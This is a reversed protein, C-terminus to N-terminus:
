VSAFFTSIKNGITTLIVVSIVDIQRLSQLIGFFRFVSFDTSHIFCSSDSSSTALGLGFGNAHVNLPQLFTLEHPIHIVTAYYQIISLSTLISSLAVCSAECQREGMHTHFKCCSKQPSTRDQCTDSSNSQFKCLCM